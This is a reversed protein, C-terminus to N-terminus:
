LEDKYKMIKTSLNDRVQGNPVGQIQKFDKSMGVSRLYM